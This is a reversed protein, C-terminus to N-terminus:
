LGDKKDSRYFYHYMVRPIYHETKVIGIARMRDAWRSDEGFGGEMPVQLALERRMPNLHSIDRYYGTSDSYWRGYKLSHYTLPRKVGDHYMQVQFGIQDVGDLLPQITSVYDEAVMDDDDVFNIYEAQSHRRMIERNTGLSSNPNFTQIVLEVDDDIQPELVSLLRELLAAREHMTLILIEWKM